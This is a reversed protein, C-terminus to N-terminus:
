KLSEPYHLNRSVYHSGPSDGVFKKEQADNLIDSVISSYTAAFTERTHRARAFEWNRKAMAALEQPDRLSISKVAAKIEEVSSERLLVGQSDDVDVGSEYSVVPILGAHM